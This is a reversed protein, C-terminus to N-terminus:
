SDDSSKLKKLALMKKFFFSLNSVLIYKLVMKTEKLCSTWKKISIDGELKKKNGNEMYLVKKSMM